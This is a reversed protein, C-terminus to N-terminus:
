RAPFRILGKLGSVGIRCIQSIKRTIEKLILEAIKEGKQKKRELVKITQINTTRFQDGISKRTDEKKEIEMIKSIIVKM